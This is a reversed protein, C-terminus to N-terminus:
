ATRIANAFLYLGLMSLHPDVIDIAPCSRAVVEALGGTAIVRTRGGLEESFREVLLRTAGVVGLMIGAQLAEVTNRGIARQPPDFAIQPLKATRGVLADISVNIGPAIAAGLFAGARSIATFVTATGYSAIILPTGYRAAGGIAAAVLDAGVEAARESEIQILRQKEPALMTPTLSFFRKCAGLLAFDLKPVVSAIVIRDITRLELKAVAFLQTIFVGLEDPTRDILTRVRWMQLVGGDEDLIGFKTETNGVDIALLM